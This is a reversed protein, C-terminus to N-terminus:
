LKLMLMFTESESFALRTGCNLKVNMGYVGVSVGNVNQGGGAM